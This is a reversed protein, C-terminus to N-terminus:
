VQCDVSTVILFNVHQHDLIDLRQGPQEGALSISPGRIHTQHWKYRSSLNSSLYILDPTSEPGAGSCSQRTLEMLHKAAEINRENCCTASSNPRCVCSVGQESTRCTYMLQLELEM